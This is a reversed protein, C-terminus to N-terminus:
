SNSRKSVKEVAQKIRSRGISSHKPPDKVTRYEGKVFQYAQGSKPTPPLPDGRTVTVERGSKGGRPGVVSYKGSVPAKQGPKVHKVKKTM